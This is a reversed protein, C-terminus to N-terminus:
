TAVAELTANVYWRQSTPEFAAPMSNTEKITAIIAALTSGTATRSLPSAGEANPSILRARVAEYIETVIDDAGSQSSSVSVRIELNRFAIQLSTEGRGGVTVSVLPDPPEPVDVPAAGFIHSGDLTQPSGNNVAYTLPVTTLAAYIAQRISPITRM